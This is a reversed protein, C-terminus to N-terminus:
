QGASLVSQGEDGQVFLLFRRRTLQTEENWLSPGRHGRQIELALLVDVGVVEGDGVARQNGIGLSGQVRSVRIVVEDDVAVVQVRQLGQQGALAPRSYWRRM